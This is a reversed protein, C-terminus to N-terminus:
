IYFKCQTSQKNPGILKNVYLNFVLEQNLRKNRELQAAKELEEKSLQTPQKNKTFFWM